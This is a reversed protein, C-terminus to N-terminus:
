RRGYQTTFQESATNDAARAIRVTKNEYPENVARCESVSLYTSRPLIHNIVTGRTVGPIEPAVLAVVLVGTGLGQMMMEFRRRVDVVTWITGFHERTLSVQTSM